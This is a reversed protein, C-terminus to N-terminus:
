DVDHSDGENLLTLIAQKVEGWATQASVAEGEAECWETVKHWSGIFSVPMVMERIADERAKALLKDLAKQADPDIPLARVAAGFNDADQEIQKQTWEGESQEQILPLWLDSSAARERMEMAAAAALATASSTIEAARALAQDREATLRAIEAQADDYRVYEGDLIPWSCNHAAHYRQM